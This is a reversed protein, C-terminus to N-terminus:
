FGAEITGSAPYYRWDTADASGTIAVSNGGTNANTPIVGDAFMTGTINAPYAATGNVAANAYSIALASRISGLAGATAATRANGQLDIYRPLAIASIIGLLVIVMIVEILTFGKNNLINVGGM